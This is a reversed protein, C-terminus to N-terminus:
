LWWMMATSCATKTLAKALTFTMLRLVVARAFLLMLPPLLTQRYNFEYPKFTNFNSIQLAGACSCVAVIAELGASV